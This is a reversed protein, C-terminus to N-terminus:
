AAARRPASLISELFRAIRRAIERNGLRTAHVHDEFYQSQGALQRGLDLVPVDHVRAVDHVARDCDAFARVLADHSLGVFDYAIRRRDTADNSADVLRAQTVFVPSAGAHRAAAALLALNMAYQRPGWAGYWRAYREGSTDAESPGTVLGELGMEGLRWWWYRRRLRVYLQSHCLLRDLASQYYIFPNRVRSRGDETPLPRVERLLSHSPALWPFYKIDNWAEYVLVWDPELMWVDAYLRGVLDWTAHGPVAANVVEVAPHRRRLMREVLAPWAETNTATIGFAASGGLVVIRTVGNPKPIAVPRGRYGDENIRALVRGQADRLTQAQRPLAHRALVAVDYELSARRMTEPTFYPKTLRLWTEAGAFCLVATVVASTAALLWPGAHRRRTTPAGTV